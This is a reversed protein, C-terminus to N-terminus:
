ESNDEILKRVVEMGIQLDETGTFQATTVTGDSEIDIEIRKGVVTTHITVVDDRYRALSYHIKEADLEALIEYLSHM